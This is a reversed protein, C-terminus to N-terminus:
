HQVKGDDNAKQASASRELEMGTLVDHLRQTRADDLAKVQAIFKEAEAKESKIKEITM